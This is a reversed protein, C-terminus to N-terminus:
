TKLRAMLVGLGVFCACWSATILTMALVDLQLKGALIASAGPLVTVVGVLGFWRMTGREHMMGVSLLVIGASILVSGAKAFALMMAVAFALVVTEASPASLMVTSPPLIVIPPPLAVAFAKWKAEYKAVRVPLLVAVALALTVSDPPM